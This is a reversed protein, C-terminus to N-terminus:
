EAAKALIRRALEVSVAAVSNLVRDIEADDKPTPAQALLPAAIKAAMMTLHAFYDPIILSLKDEFTKDM